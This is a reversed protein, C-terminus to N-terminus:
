SMPSTRSSRRRSADRRSACEQSLFWRHELLQHFIEAPELKSFLEAPVAEIIPEFRLDLWRVAVINEPM